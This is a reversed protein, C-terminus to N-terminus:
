LAQHGLLLFLIMLAIVVVTLVLLIRVSEKDTGFIIPIPGILIIDAGKTKHGSRAVTITISLFAIAFGIIIIVLGALGLLSWDPL